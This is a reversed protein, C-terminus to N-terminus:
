LDGTAMWADASVKKAAAPSYQGALTLDSGRSNITVGAGAVLTVAGAGAQEFDIETGIPIPLLLNKPITFNIAGANTFRLYFDEDGPQLTYNAVAIVKIPKPGTRAKPPSNEIALARVAANEDAPNFAGDTPM